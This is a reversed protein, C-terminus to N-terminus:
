SGASALAFMQVNTSCPIAQLEDAIFPQAHRASRLNSKATATPWDAALDTQRRPIASHAAEDTLESSWPPFLM